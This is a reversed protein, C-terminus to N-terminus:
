PAEASIRLTPPPTYTTSTSSFPTVYVVAKECVALSLAGGNAKTLGPCWASGGSETSAYAGTGSSGEAVVGTCAQREADTLPPTSRRYFTLFADDARYPSAVSSCVAWASLLVPASSTNQVTWTRYPELTTSQTTPCTGGYLRGATPAGAFATSVTSVNGVAALTITVGTPDCTVYFPVNGSTGGGPAPTMVSLQMTGLTGLSGNPVVATLQMPSAYTTALNKTGTTDTLRVVSTSLFGTGSLTVTKDGGKYYWTNPSVSGLTPVPNKVQFTAPPSVGGGPPPTTVVVSFNGATTLSGAPIVAAIHTADTTSSSITVGNFSVTTAAVFGSGVITIPTNGDGVTGTSPTVSTISITSPNTVTFSIPTSTGGGPAPNVVKVAHSGAIGLLVAPITATISTSTSASVVLDTTDFTVKAGTAFDSGTVTLQTDPSGVPVNTPSLTTPAPAPNEVTFPLASSVGGGPTFTSVVIQVVAASGLKTTPLPARLETASVFTTPLDDGDAKVTSRAVFDSGTIILTPGLAGVKASSPSIATLVPVPADKEKSSDTKSGGDTVLPDGSDVGPAVTGGDPVITTEFGDNAGTACAAGSAAWGAFTCVALLARVSRTFHSRRM